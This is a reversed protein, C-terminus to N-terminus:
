DDVRGKKYERILVREKAVVYANWDKQDKEHMLVIQAVHSNISRLYVAMERKPFVPMEIRAYYEKDVAFIPEEINIHDFGIELIQTTHVLTLLQKEENKVLDTLTDVKKHLEVLLNLLVEDTDRTEGRAKAIKLWQGIADEEYESLSSYERRFLENKEADMTEFHMTLIAPIFRIDSM